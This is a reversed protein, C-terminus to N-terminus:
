VLLGAGAVATLYTATSAVLALGVRYGILVPDLGRELGTSLVTLMVALLLVYVGVVQGVGATSLTGGLSDTTAAERGIGDVLAVSGGAALPGFFAATSALTGTVAALERRGEREVRRVSRLHDSAAVLAAGAPRGEAAALAVLAAASRARPSPVADLAGHEGLFSERVSTRLRRQIAVADALVRGTAGPADEAVASLAREVAVGESVRHGIQALADDLGSEIERVRDRVSTVPRYHVVLGSGVGVSAAALPATWAGVLATGAFAAAVAGGTGVALAPWRRDPVDPHSRDVRPAPFAVPRRVLLRGGTVVLALPLLIDYVAAIHTLGVGLGAVRAAPLVGVVALPLLVGFAYLGTAPGRIEEAFTATRRRTGDRVVELARELSRDRDDPPAAAASAVHSVARELEPFWESWAAAFAALGTRPTSESGRVHRALSRALAGDDTRAAFTAAREPSPEVRMRLAIRGFLSTAAGLARSRALAAAVLPLGHVVQTAGLGAGLAALLAPLPSLAVTGVVLAAAAAFPAIVYGVARVTESTEPRGLFTLARDLDPDRSVAAPWPWLAALSEAVTV